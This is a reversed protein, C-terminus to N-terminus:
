LIQCSSAFHDESCAEIEFTQVRSFGLHRVAVMKFAPFDRYRRLAKVSRCLIPIFKTRHRLNIRKVRDVTLIDFNEFRLMASPVAAMNFVSLDRYRPLATVSRWSILCSSAFTNFRGHAGAAIRGKTFNSQGSAIVVSQRNILPFM